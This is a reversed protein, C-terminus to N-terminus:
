TKPLRIRVQQNNKTLYGATTGIHGQLETVIQGFGSNEQRSETFIKCVLSLGCLRLSCSGNNVLCFAIHSFMLILFCGSCGRWCDLGWQWNMCSDSQWAVRYSKVTQNERLFRWVAIKIITLSSRATAWATLRRGRVALARTRNWALIHPIQPPCLSVLVPNEGLIETKGQWFWEVWEDVVLVVHPVLV